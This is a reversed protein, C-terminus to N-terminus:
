SLNKRGEQVNHLFFNTTLLFNTDSLKAASRWENREVPALKGSFGARIAEHLRLFGKGSWGYIRGPVFSSLVIPCESISGAASM